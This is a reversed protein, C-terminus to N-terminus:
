DGYNEVFKEIMQQYCKRCLHTKECKHKEPPGFVLAGPVKLINKCRDCRILFTVKESM